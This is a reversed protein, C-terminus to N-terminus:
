PDGGVERQDGEEYTQDPSHRGLQPRLIVSVSICVTAERPDRPLVDVSSRKIM